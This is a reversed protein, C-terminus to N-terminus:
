GEPVGPGHELCLDSCQMGFQDLGFRHRGIMAGVESGLTASAVSQYRLQELSGSVQHGRLLRRTKGDNARQRPQRLRGALARAAQASVHLREGFQTCTLAETMRAGIIM